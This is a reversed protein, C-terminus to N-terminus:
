VALSHIPQVAFFAQGHADSLSTPHAPISVTVLGAAALGFSRQDISKRIVPWFGSVVILAAVLPGAMFGTLLGRTFM